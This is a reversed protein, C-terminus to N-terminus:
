LNSKYSLNQELYLRVVRGSDPGEEWTGRSEDSWDLFLGTGIPYGVSFDTIEVHNGEAQYMAADIMDAIAWATTDGGLADIDRPVRITILVSTHWVQAMSREDKDAVHKGFQLTIGLPLIPRGSEKLGVLWVDEGSPFSWVNQTNPYQGFNLIGPSSGERLYAVILALLSQRALQRNEADLTFAM